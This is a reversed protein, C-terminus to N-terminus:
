PSRKSLIHARHCYVVDPDPLARLPKPQLSARQMGPHSVCVTILIPCREDQNWQASLAHLILHGSVVQPVSLLHYVPAVCEWTGRFWVVLSLLFCPGCHRIWSCTMRPEAISSMASNPHSSFITILTVLVECGLIRSSLFDRMSPIYYLNREGM